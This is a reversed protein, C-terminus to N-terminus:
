CFVHAFEEDIEACVLLLDSEVDNERVCCISNSGDVVCGLNISTNDGLQWGKPLTARLLHDILIGAPNVTVM